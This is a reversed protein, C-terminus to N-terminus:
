WWRSYAGHPMINEPIGDPQGDMWASVDPHHLRGLPQQELTSDEETTQKNQTMAATTGGRGMSTVTGTMTSKV